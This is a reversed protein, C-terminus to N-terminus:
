PTVEQIRAEGSSPKLDAVIRRGRWTLSVRLSSWGAPLRPHFIVSGTTASTDLGAFGFVVAQWLAGLAGIHVGSAANGFTNALDIEVGQRFYREALATHGLRAAVSAHIAPSLSSGHACRPEYYRFNAERVAAPFRDWLLHLLMVVDAQKIIRSRQVRERGLLVDVPASRPELEALDIDELAFYGRFQEFLGTTEDFGTYMSAAVREWHEPEGAALELRARLAEADTPFRAPLARVLEAARELNWQALVNTYANDDVSEHYEDPGIVGRIHFRGDEEHVARSAWFRATEVLIEAGTELLFADDATAQWYTWVAWAVDASIHQELEGVHIRVVKGDPGIVLPPTVDEGTAASEWAFLAGRCGARTARARAAPLTHQRYRLLARAAEPYALAYFPLMFVETDWFVHGKYADGTLGRAGISVRDDDPNAASVLHYCAFRMARQAAPDGEVGIDCARWREEWARRHDRVAADFGRAVVEELHEMVRETPSDLGERSTHVVVFRDLRRPAGVDVEAVWRAAPQLEGDLMTAAGVVVRTGCGPPELERIAYPGVEFGGDELSVDVSVKGEYNEPVFLVSQLFLHRDALSLLRLAYIGSVRGLPDHQRWERWLIAQRLDLIRRHEVLRDLDLLIRHSGASGRVRTWDGIHPLLPTTSSPPTAFVGAIYTAPASLRSGEALSGRSGAYGNGLAFISELEHERALQFGEEVVVWAPDPTPEVPFRSFNSRMELKTQPRGRAHSPGPTAMGAADGLASAGLAGHEDAARSIADAPM